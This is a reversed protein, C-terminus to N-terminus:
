FASQIVAAKPTLAQSLQAQHLPFFQQGLSHGAQIPLPPLPEPFLARPVHISSDCCRFGQGLSEGLLCEDETTCPPALSHFQPLPVMTQTAGQTSHKARSHVRAGTRHGHKQHCMWAEGAAQPQAQLKPFLVTPSSIIINQEGRLKKGKRSVLVHQKNSSM